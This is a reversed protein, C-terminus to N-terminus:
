HAMAQWDELQSSNTTTTYLPNGENPGIGALESQILEQGNTLMTVIKGGFCREYFKFAAECQGGFPLNPTIARLTIAVQHGRSDLDRLVTAWSDTRECCETIDGRPPPERDRSCYWRRVM